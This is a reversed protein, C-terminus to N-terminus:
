YRAVDSLMDRLRLMGARTRSKVTGLPIGIAAAIETQTLGHFYALEIVRAQDEPLEQCAARVRDRMQAGIVAKEPDVANPDIEAERKLWEGPVTRPRSRMRRLEDFTLNRGIRLVWSDLRGREPDFTAIRRWVRVFTDQVIEDAVEPGVRQRAMAHLLGALRDYLEALAAGDRDLIRAALEADARKGSAADARGDGEVATGQTRHAAAIKALNIMRVNRNAASGKATAM